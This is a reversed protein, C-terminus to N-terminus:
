RCTIKSESERIYPDSPFLKAFINKPRATGSILKEREGGEYCFSSDFIELTIDSSHPSFNKTEGSFVKFWPNQENSIM